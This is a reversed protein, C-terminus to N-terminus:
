RGGALEEILIYNYLVVLAHKQPETTWNTGNNGDLKAATDSDMLNRTRNRIAVLDEASPRYQLRGSDINTDVLEKIAGVSEPQSIWIIFNWADRITAGDGSVGKIFGDSSSTFPSASISEGVNHNLALYAIMAYKNNSVIDIKEQNRGMRAYNDSWNTYARVIADNWNWRDGMYVIENVPARNEITTVLQMAASDAGVVEYETAKYVLLQTPAGAGYSSMMQLYGTSGSRLTKNRLEPIQVITMATNWTKIMEETIEDINLYSAPIAPALLKGSNGRLGGYEANAQAMGFLPDKLADPLDLATSNVNKKVINFILNNLEIEHESFRTTSLNLEEPPPGYDLTSGLTALENIREKEVASMNVIDEFSQQSYISSWNRSYLEWADNAEEPTVRFVILLLTVSIILLILLIVVPLKLDDLKRM